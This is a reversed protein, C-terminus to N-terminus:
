ADLEAMLAAAEQALLALDETLTRWDGREAFTQGCTLRGFTVADRQSLHNLPEGIDILRLRALRRLAENGDRDAQTKGDLLAM